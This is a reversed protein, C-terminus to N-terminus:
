KQTISALPLSSLHPTKSYGHDRVVSAIARHSLECSRLSSHSTAEHRNM